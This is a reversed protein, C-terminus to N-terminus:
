KRSKRLTILNEPQCYYNCLTRLLSPDNLNAYDAFNIHFFTCTQNTMFSIKNKKKNIKKNYNQM